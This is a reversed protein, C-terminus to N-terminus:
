FTASSSVMHPQLLRLLQFGHVEEAGVVAALTQDPIFMRGNLPNQLNHTKVYNWTLHVIEPRTAREVGIIAM